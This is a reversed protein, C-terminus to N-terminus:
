RIKKLDIGLEKCDAELMIKVLKSFTIKPKWGLKKKIKSTDGVLISTEASRTYKANFDVYNKWKKIGALRFTEEIFEKISHVEGTAVVYDDPKNQQLMLWMAEVYEPSYGWDRKADLSGLCIKKRKGALIEAVGSTIKRTVFIKGRRPSEHNFMIGNSAHIGYSERHNITACHAFLKSTGYLNRPRFPTKETQPSSKINGFIESSSAQFYKIKPNIMRIAELIRLAGLAVVDVTYESINSCVGIHTQAGLNYIENPFIKKILKFLSSSDTLDGYHLFIKSKRSDESYIHKIREINPCSSRRLLGHVEYGKSLLLEALYSGDQGTIGTILARKKKKM